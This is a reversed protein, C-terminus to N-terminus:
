KALSVDYKQTGTHMQIQSGFRNSGPLKVTSIFQNIYWQDVYNLGDVVEKSHGPENIGWDTIISYCQSMVAM